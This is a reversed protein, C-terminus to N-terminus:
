INQGRAKYYSAHFLRNTHNLFRFKYLVFIVFISFFDYCNRKILNHLKFNDFLFYYAHIQICYFSIVFCEKYNGM